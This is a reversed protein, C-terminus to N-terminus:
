RAREGAERGSSIPFTRLAEKEGDEVVSSGERPEEANANVRKACYEGAACVRVCPVQVHTCVPVVTPLVILM